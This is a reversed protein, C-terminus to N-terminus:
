GAFLPLIIRWGKQMRFTKQSFIWRGFRRCHFFFFAFKRPSSKCPDNCKGVWVFDFFGGCFKGYIPMTEDRGFHTYDLSGLFLIMDSCIAARWLLTCPTKKEHHSTTAKKDKERPKIRPYKKQLNGFFIPSGEWTTWNMRVTSFWLKKPHQFSDTQPFFFHRGFLEIRLVKRQM